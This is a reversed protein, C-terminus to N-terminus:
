VPITLGVHWTSLFPHWPPHKLDPRPSFIRVSLYVAWSSVARLLSSAYLRPSLLVTLTIKPIHLQSM